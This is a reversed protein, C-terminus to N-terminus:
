SKRNAGQDSLRWDYDYADIKKVRQLAQRLKPAAYRKLHAIVGDFGGLSDAYWVYISSAEVRDPKITLGRPHNVFARAARDLQRDIHRGEFAEPLLNPCGISLCNLAYHLRFDKFPALKVKEIDDLSLAQGEVSVLNAKWPGDGPKGDPGALAIDRISGVPYRELVVELTKANYLNSWFAKADNASMRSPRGQELRAVYAKLRFLGNARFGQFDVRNIGDPNTKVYARLLDNLAAHPSPSAARAPPPGGIGCALAMGLGAAVAVLTRRNVKVRAEGRTPEISAVM